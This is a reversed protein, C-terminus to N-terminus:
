LWLALYGSPKTVPIVSRKSDNDTDNRKRKQHYHVLKAVSDRRTAITYVNFFKTNPERRHRPTFLEFFPTSKLMLQSGSATKYLELTLM